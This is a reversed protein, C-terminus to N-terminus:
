VHAQHSTLEKKQDKSDTDDPVLYNIAGAIYAPLDVTWYYVKDISGGPRDRQKVAEILRKTSLLFRFCNMLGDGQWRHRSIGLKKYMRKIGKLDGNMGVDYGVKHLLPSYEKQKLYKIAGRLVDKDEVYGISLLVNMRYDKSVGHWLHYVLNEALTLGATFKSTAPLKSTKLDLFLLIMKGAYPSAPKGTIERIHSLFTKIEERKGCVRFCECPFTEHYTGLVTGNDAFEIDAEVANAGDKLFANVEKVTNAMHGIIFFPRRRDGIKSAAAPFVSTLLLSTALLSRFTM